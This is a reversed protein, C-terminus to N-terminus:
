YGLISYQLSATSFAAGNDGYGSDAESSADILSVRRVTDRIDVCIGGQDGPWTPWACLQPLM